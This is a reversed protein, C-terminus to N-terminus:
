DTIYKEAVTKFEDIRKWAATELNKANSIAAEIAGDEEFNEVLDTARQAIDTLESVIADFETKKM